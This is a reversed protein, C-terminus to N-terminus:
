RTGKETLPIAFQEVKTLGIEATSKKPFNYPLARGRRVPTEWNEVFAM